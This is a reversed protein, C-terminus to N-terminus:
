SGSEKQKHYMSTLRRTYHDPLHDSIFDFPNVTHAPNGRSGIKNTKTPNNDLLKGASTLHKLEGVHSFGWSRLPVKCVIDNNNVVRYTRAGLRRNYIDAGEANLVRPCGFSYVATPEPLDPEAFTLKSAATQSMGAGLSHGGIFLSKQQNSYAVKLHHKIQDWINDVSESFGAHIDGICFPKKSIKANVIWQNWARPETGRFILFVNENDWCIMASPEYISGKAEIQQFHPYGGQKVLRKVEPWDEKPFPKDATGAYVAYSLKMMHLANSICWDASQVFEKKDIVYEKM